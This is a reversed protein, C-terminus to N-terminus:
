LKQYEPCYKAIYFDLYRVEGFSVKHANNHANKVRLAQTKVMEQLKPHKVYDAFILMDSVGSVGYVRHTSSWLYPYLPHTEQYSADIFDYLNGYQYVNKVFDDIQETLKHHLATVTNTINQAAFTDHARKVLDQDTLSTEKHQECYAIVFNIRNNWFLDRESMQYVDQTESDEVTIPNKFNVSIGCSLEFIEFSNIDYIEYNLIFKVEEQWHCIVRFDRGTKSSITAKIGYKDFCHQLIASFIMVRSHVNSLHKSMKTADPPNNAEEQLLKIVTEYGSELINEQQQQVITELRKRFHQPISTGDPLYFGFDVDSYVIHGHANATKIMHLYWAEFNVDPQWELYYYPQKRRTPKYNDLIEQYTKIVHSDKLTKNSEQSLWEQLAHNMIDHIPNPLDTNKVNDFRRHIRSSPDKSKTPDFLEPPFVYFNENPM